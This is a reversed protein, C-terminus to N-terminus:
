NLDACGLVRWHPADQCATEGQDSLLMGHSFQRRSTSRTTGKSLQFPMPQELIALAAQIM